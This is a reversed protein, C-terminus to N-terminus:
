HLQQGEHGSGRYRGLNGACTTESSHLDREYGLNSYSSCFFLMDKQSMEEEAKM